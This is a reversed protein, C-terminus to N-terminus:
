PRVEMMAKAIEAARCECTGGGKAIQRLAQSSLNCAVALADLRKGHYESLRERLTEIKM